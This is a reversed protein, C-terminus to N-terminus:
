NLERDWCAGIEHGKKKLEHCNSRRAIAVAAVCGFRDDVQRCPANLIDIGRVLELMVAMAGDISNSRRAASLM